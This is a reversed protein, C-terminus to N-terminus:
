CKFKKKINKIIQLDDFRIKRNKYIQFKEHGKGAVILVSNQKLDNIAKIIAEKRNAIEQANKCNKIINLRIKKPDERRPNDDTIIVKDAFKNAINGMIKRKFKDRGGGCGFVVSPKKNKITNALLINKLADPTHAYDVIVKSSIKNFNVVESRGPPSKIKPLINIISKININLQLCCAIACELNQIEFNSFKLDQLNIKKNFINLILKNKKSAFFINKKGYILYNIKRRAISKVLTNCNKIKSNIIAVGEPDLYNKFLKFKSSKYNSFSKHYDLHDHTINTIAAINIPFNKIRDQKLAHSSAEFVFNYKNKYKSFGNQYLTEFNPTTHLYNKIKNGNVYYGLTGQTKIKVKNLRCIESIYWVVSTKGNTGTIAITNLPKNPKLYSLLKQKEIETNKVIFQSINFKDFYKNSIIAPIKKKIAEEIYEIKIKKKSDIIFITKNDLNKSFSSIKNFNKNKKLNFIKNTDIIKEIDSLLM